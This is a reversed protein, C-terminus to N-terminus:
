RGPVMVPAVLCGVNAEEFLPAACSGDPRSMMGGWECDRDAMTLMTDSCGNVSYLARGDWECLPEQAGSTTIVGETDFKIIEMEPVTYIEKKM